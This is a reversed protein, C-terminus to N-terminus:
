EIAYTLLVDIATATTIDSGAKTALIPTNVDHVTLSGGDALVVANAAGMRVKTSRTLAAVAVVLPRSEAGAKTGLLDVSTAGAANGGIAIFAADIIRYGYRVSEPGGLDTALAPLLTVGANIEAATCRRRLHCPVGPMVYVGKVYRPKFAGPARNGDPYTRIDM